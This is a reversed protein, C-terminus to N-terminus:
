HQAFIEDLAKDIMEKTIIVGVGTVEEFEAQNLVAGSGNKKVLSDVYKIGEDLQNTRTWKDNAIMMVFDKLYAMILPKIKTTVAYFLAGKERPCSTVGAIDLVEM